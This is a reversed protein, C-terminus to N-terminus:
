CQGWQLITTFCYKQIRVTRGKTGQGHLSTFIVLTCLLVELIRCVHIIQTFNVYTAKPFKVGCVHATDYKLSLVVIDIATPTCM